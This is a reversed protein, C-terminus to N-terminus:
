NAFFWRVNVCLHRVVADCSRHVAAHLVHQPFPFRTDRAFRPTMFVARVRHNRDDLRENVAKAINDTNSVVDSRRRADSVAEALATLGKV